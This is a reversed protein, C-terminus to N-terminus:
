ENARGKRKIWGVFSRVREVVTPLKDVILFITYLATLIYVWEALPHGWLTFGTVGLPPAMTLAEKSM